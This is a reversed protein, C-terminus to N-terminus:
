DRVLARHPQHVEEGRRAEDALAELRVQDQVPGADQHGRARAPERLDAVLREGAVHRDVLLEAREDLLAPGHVGAAERAARQVAERLVEQEVADLREVREVYEVRRQGGPAVPRELEVGPGNLRGRRGTDDGGCRSSAIAVQRRASDRTYGDTM